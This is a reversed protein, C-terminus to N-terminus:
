GCCGAARPRGRDRLRDVRHGRRRGRRGTGRHAFGVPGRRRARRRAPRRRRERGEVTKLNWTFAVLDRWYSETAFLARPRRRRAGEARVRLAALWADCQAGAPRDHQDDTPDDRDGARPGPDHPAGEGLSTHGLVCRRACGAVPNCSTAVREGHEPPARRCTGLLELQVARAVRHEGPRAPGAGRRAPGDGRGPAPDAAPPSSGPEVGSTGGAPRRRAPAGARPSRAARRVDGPQGLRERETMSAPWITTTASASPRTSHRAPEGRRVGRQGVAQAEDAARGPGLAVDAGVRDAGAEHEALAHVDLARLVEHLRVGAPAAGGGRQAVRPRAAGEAHDVDASGGAPHVRGLEGQDLQRRPHGRHLHDLVAAGLEVPQAGAGSGQERAMSPSASATSRRRGGRRRPRSAPARGPRAGRRGPRRAGRAASAPRPRRRAARRPSAAAAPRRPRVGRVTARDSSRRPVGHRARRRGSRSTTAGARAGGRRSGAPAGRRRARPASRRGLERSSRKSSAARTTVTRASIDRSRRPREAAHQEGAGVAEGGADVAVSSRGSSGAATSGPELAGTTRRKRCRRRLSSDRRRCRDAGDFCM